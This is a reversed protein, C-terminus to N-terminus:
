AAHRAALWAALPLGALWLPIWGFDVSYGRAAPLSLMAAVALSSVALAYQRLPHRVIAANRQSM